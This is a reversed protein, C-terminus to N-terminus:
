KGKRTRGSSRKAKTARRKRPTKKHRRKKKKPKIKKHAAVQKTAPAVNGAGSFTASVPASFPSSAAPTGHCAEGLCPQLPPPPSSVCPDGASCMRADYYDLQTDTDTSVLPDSTTFFVNAGTADSGLLRSTSENGVLGTDRGDSILYVHGDHYEYVNRAYVPASEQNTGVPLDNLARPTLAIPSQFFVYSGDHSMTPDTRLASTPYWPSVISAAGFGGNGDDDFGDNGISIRVLSGTQADYRFLQQGGDTRTDDPTLVGHSGFVLFRGKPTTNASEVGESWLPPQIGSATEIGPSADSAPLAAVFTLRGKPYAADREFVYLNNDGNLAVQGQGNPQATLVGRAVFYIHSGDASIAVVGQVRPGSGSTDGASIAILNHGAPASFDYEYLNCGNLGVTVKCHVGEATREAENTDQSASDTLQQTSTFFVTSGDTSAGQFQAGSPPSNECETSTCETSSRQSIPVTLAQDIRAYLENAPVPVGKNAGSGSNLCARATFFVVSGDRSMSGPTNVSSADGGLQTGCESILDTSGAGGGVGVLIPAQSDVGVYEYLSMLGKTEDLSPWVPPTSAWVVHSFDATGSRSTDGFAGPGLLGLSPQSTPGVHSLTGDTSRVYWDDEKGPAVPMTFLADGTEASGTWYSDAQFQTAPPAMASTTWGGATRTFAFPEGENQREATCSESNAFCQISTAIVRSGNEAIDTKAAFVTSGILAANKSPPSVMEYARNDPLGGGNTDYVFVHDSTITTGNQNHAVIRWHYTEDEELGTVHTSIAVDTTGTGTTEDESELLPVRHGYATTTGWEFHYTADLGDPNIEATLDVSTATLNAASASDVVPVPLTPLPEDPGDVNSAKGNSAVLRFHYTTGGQLGSIDAHVPVATAGSGVSEVCPTSQGYAETPGYEFHCDSVLSGDPNVAGNLTASTATVNSPPYTLVDIVPSYVQIQNAAADAVYVVDSASDVALGAGGALHGTGFTEGLNCHSPECPSDFRQISKGELRQEGGEDVYLEGTAQDVAIGALAESDQVVEGIESGSASFKEVIPIGQVYYVNENSDVAIPGEQLTSIWSQIFAGSQDFEFVKGGGGQVWLNGAPDTAVRADGGFPGNETNTGALQGNPSPTSDGWSSVLEGTSTFKQVTKYDGVYVDGASLGSSGDVAISIPGAGLAGFQGPGSGAIGQECILTCTEFKALGDAVGWGWARIFNGEADFQDVRHNGADAVYVDGAAPGTSNDVAVAQPSIM